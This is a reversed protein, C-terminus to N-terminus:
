RVTEVFGPLMLDDCGLFMTLQHEALDRCRQYNETIGLNVENRRYRIRPDQETEFHRAVSEDPYCDDVITLRWAPDTQGRVSEVAAYLLDPDGWFPLMVDLTAGEIRM